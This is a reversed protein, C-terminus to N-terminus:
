LAVANFPNTPISKRQPAREIKVRHEDDFPTSFPNIGSERMAPNTTLIRTVPTISTGALDDQAENQAKFKWAPVSSSRRHPHQPPPMLNVNSTNGASANFGHHLPPAFLSQSHLPMQSSEYVSNVDHPVNQRTETRPFVFGNGNGAPPSTPSFSKRSPSLITVWPAVRPQSSEAPPSTSWRSHEERTLTIMSSSRDTSIRLNPRSQSAENDNNKRGLLGTFKGLWATSRKEQPQPEPESQQRASDEDPVLTERGMGIKGLARLRMPKSITRNRPERSVDAGGFGGFFNEWSKHEPEQKPASHPEPSPLPTLQRLDTSHASLGGNELNNDARKESGWENSSSPSHLQFPVIGGRQEREYRRRRRKEMLPKGYSYWLIICIGMFCVFAWLGMFILFMVREKRLSAAYSNILKRVIGQNDDGGGGIAAAAIPKTAEDVSDQSLVLATENVRPINIVLNDHLFTLANEIADVKTGILCRIFEQAPQELITGNFVTNVANQIDNYLENITTNLTTTTGNVWGFVGNNLDSQMADVRGNVDNAYAASQNYMSSNISTAITNSFDSAAAAEKEAYKAELSDIAFLQIQVSLLGFFGILFVALAPAHFIYNLYWSLNCHKQPSLRLRQSIQNIIRTLLPHEGNAQLMLMNHDTLTVQPVGGTAKTQYITPDTTWAQRTYELHAKQCRWKYWVLLCNLGILILALLIIVIVGIKAIRIMDQGLDDVVSTDLDNCFTLRNQAPVPLTSSNFNMGAFTDNIDKKLLEFPTNIIEEIKDKIDNFTPLTDNLRTLSDEFTTPIQLNTLSDLNPVPIQPAQIDDFPNVKNIADIANKIVNNASSIDNQISTALSGATREILDTFEKVAGIIIALGGRIVLELFCLFTSRYIDIIFNIIAEMITLALVLTARAARMTGNVADAFQENTAIALFRPMSAASTAAQEAAKCSALLNAKASAVADQSSALSLQLRFAVFLLSLIPYALWTLSLLHPLELYPKLSSSIYTTSHADYHPPPPLSM